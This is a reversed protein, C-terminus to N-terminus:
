ELFCIISQFLLNKKPAWIKIINSQENRRHLNRRCNKNYIIQIYLNGFEVFIQTNTEKSHIEVVM